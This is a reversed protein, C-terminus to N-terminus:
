AMKCVILNVKKVKVLNVKKVKSMSDVLNVVKTLIIAKGKNKHNLERNTETIDKGSILCAVKATAKSIRNHSITTKDAKQSAATIKNMKHAIKSVKNVRRDKIKKNETKGKSVKNGMKSAIKSKVAKGVKDKDTIAKHNSNKPKKRM